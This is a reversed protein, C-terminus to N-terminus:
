QGPCDPLQDLPPQVGRRVYESPDLVNGNGATDIVKVGHIEGTTLRLVCVGRYSSM